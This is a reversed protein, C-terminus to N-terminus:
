LMDMNLGDRTLRIEKVLCLRRAIYAEEFGDRLNPSKGEEDCAYGQVTGKKMRINLSGGGGEAELFKAHWVRELFFFLSTIKLWGGCIPSPSVGFQYLAGM